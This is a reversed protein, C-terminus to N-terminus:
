HDPLARDIPLALCERCAQLCLRLDFVPDPHQVSCDEPVLRYRRGHRVREQEAVDENRRPLIKSGLLLAAAHHKRVSFTVGILSPSMQRAGSQRRFCHVAQDGLAGGGRTSFGIPTRLMYEVVNRACASFLTAERSTAAKQVAISPDDYEM